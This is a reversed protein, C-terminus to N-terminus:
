LFPLASRAAQASIRPSSHGSSVACSSRASDTFNEAVAIGPAEDRFGGIARRESKCFKRDAFVRVAARSSRNRKEFADPDSGFEPPLANSRPEYLAGSFEGGSAAEALHARIRFDLVERRM